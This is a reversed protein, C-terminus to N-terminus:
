VMTIREKRIDNRLRTLLMGLCNPGKDYFGKMHYAGVDAKYAIRIEGNGTDLLMRSLEHNQFKSELLPYITNDRFWEKNKDIANKVSSYINGDFRVDCKYWLSLYSTDDNYKMVKYNGYSDYFCDESFKPLGLSYYSSIVSKYKDKNSNIYKVVQDVKATPINKRVRLYHSRDWTGDNKLYIKVSTKCMKTQYLVVGPFPDDEDLLVGINVGKYSDIRPIVVSNGM